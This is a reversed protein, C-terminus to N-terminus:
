FPPNVMAKLVLVFALSKSSKPPGVNQAVEMLVHHDVTKSTDMPIRNQLGLHFSAFEQSKTKLDLRTPLRNWTQLKQLEHFRLLGAEALTTFEVAQGPTAGFIPIGPFTRPLGPFTRTSLCGHSCRPVAFTGPIVLDYWWRTTLHGNTWPRLTPGKTKDDGSKLDTQDIGHSIRKTMQMIANFGGFYTYIYISM